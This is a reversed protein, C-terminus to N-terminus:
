NIFVYFGSDNVTLMLKLDKHKEFDFKSSIQQFLLKWNLWAFLNVSIEPNDMKRKVFHFQLFCM